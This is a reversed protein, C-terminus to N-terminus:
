LLDGQGATPKRRKRPKPRDEDVGSPQLSGRLQQVIEGAEEPSPGTDDLAADIAEAPTQTTEDPSFQKGRSGTSGTQAVLLPDPGAPAESEEAPSALESVAPTTHTRVVEIVDLGLLADSWYRKAHRSVARWLLMDDGWAAYMHRSHGTTLGAKVAEAWSFKSEEEISGPGAADIAGVARTTRCWGYRDRDVAGLEVGVECRLCNAHKRILALAASGKWGASGKVVYISQVSMMPSLGAEAGTQIAVFIKSPSDLSQPAIGSKHVMQCFTRAQELDHIAVGGSDISVDKLSVMGTEDEAM